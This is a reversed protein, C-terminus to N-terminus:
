ILTIDAGETDVVVRVPGGLAHIYSAITSLEAMTIDGSEIRSVSSQIDGMARAVDQQSLGHAKRIEVLRHAVVEGELRDRHEAVSQEDPRGEDVADRRVDRWTKAM